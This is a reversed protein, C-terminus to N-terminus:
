EAAVAAVASQGAIHGAAKNALKMAVINPASKEHGHMM